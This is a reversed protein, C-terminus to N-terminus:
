LPDRGAYADAPHRCLSRHISGHHPMTVIRVVRRHGAAFIDGRHQLPEGRSVLLYEIAQERMEVRLQLADRVAPKAGFGGAM